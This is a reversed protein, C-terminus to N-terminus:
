EISRERWYMDIAVTGVPGAYTLNNIGPELLFFNGEFNNLDNSNNNLCTYREGDFVVTQNIQVTGRYRSYLGTTTNTVRVDTMATPTATIYIRCPTRVTGTNTITFNFPSGPVLPYHYEAETANYWFPDGATFELSFGGGVGNAHRTSEFNPFSTGTCIAYVFRGDDRLFLRDRGANQLAAGLNVFYDKLESESTKWVEGDMQIVLEDSFAIDPILTGHRRPLAAHTLKNKRSPKWSRIYEITFDAFKIQFM